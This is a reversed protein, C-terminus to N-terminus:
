FMREYHKTDRQRVSYPVWYTTRQGGRRQLPDWKTMRMLAGIPTVIFLFVLGLIVRTSVSSLIAALAMWARNPVALARPWVLALAVLLVGTAMMPAAAAPWRERYTFWAGLLLLVLGVSRGFQREDYWGSNM